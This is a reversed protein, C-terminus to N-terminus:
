RAEMVTSVITTTSVSACSAVVQGKRERSTMQSRPDRAMKMQAARTAIRNPTTMMTVRSAITKPLNINKARAKGM